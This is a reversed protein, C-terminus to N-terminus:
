RAYSDRLLSSHFSLFSSCFLGCLCFSRVKDQMFSIDPHRFSCSSDVTIFELRQFHNRQTQIKKKKLIIIFIVIMIILHMPVVLVVIFQVSFSIKKRVLGTEPTRRCGQGTWAAQTGKRVGTVHATAVLPYHQPPAQTHLPRQKHQVKM